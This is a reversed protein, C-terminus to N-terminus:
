ATQEPALLCVIIAKAGMGAPVPSGLYGFTRGRRTNQRPTSVGTGTVASPTQKNQCVATREGAPYSISAALSEEREERRQFVSVLSNSHSPSKAKSSELWNRQLESNEIESSVLFFLVSQLFFVDGWSKILAIL